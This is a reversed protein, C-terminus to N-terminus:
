TYLNLYTQSAREALTYGNQYRLYHPTNVLTEKVQHARFESSNKQVVTLSNFDESLM